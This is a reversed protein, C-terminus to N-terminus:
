PGRRVRIYWNSVVKLYNAAGRRIYTKTNTPPNEYKTTPNQQLNLRNLGNSTYQKM